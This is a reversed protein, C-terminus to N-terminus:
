GLEAILPATDLPAFGIRAAIEETSPKTGECFLDRLIDGARPNCWWDEGVEQV